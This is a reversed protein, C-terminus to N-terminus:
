LIEIRRPLAHVIALPEEVYLYPRVPGIERLTGVALHRLVELFEVVGDGVIRLELYIYRWRSITYIYILTLSM